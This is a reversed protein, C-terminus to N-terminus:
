NRYADIWSLEFQSSGILLCSPLTVDLADKGVEVRVNLTGTPPANSRGKKDAGLFCFNFKGSSKANGEVRVRDTTLTFNELMAYGKGQQQQLRITVNEPWQGGKLTATAGGIGSPSTVIFITRDKEKGTVLTDAPKRLKFEYVPETAKQEGGLALATILMSAFM